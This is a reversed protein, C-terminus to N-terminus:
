GEEEGKDEPICTEKYCIGTVGKYKQIYVARNRQDFVLPSSTSHFSGESDAVLTYGWLAISMLTNEASEKNYREFTFGGKLFFNQYFPKVDMEIDKLPVDSLFDVYDMSMCKAKHNCFVEEVGGIEEGQWGEQCLCVCAKRDECNDPRKIVIAKKYRGTVREYAGISIEESYKSFGYIATGKDMILNMSRTGGEETEKIVEIFRNFSQEGGSTVRFLSKALFIASLFFLLAIILRLLFETMLGRRKKAISFDLIGRCKRSKKSSSM